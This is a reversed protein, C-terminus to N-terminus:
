YLLESGQGHTLPGDAGPLRCTLKYVFKKDTENKKKVRKALADRFKRYGSPNDRLDDNGDPTCFGQWSHLEWLGKRSWYDPGTGCAVLGNYKTAYRYKSGSSFLSRFFDLSAGSGQPDDDLGVIPLGPLDDDAPPCNPLRKQLVAGLLGGSLLSTSSLVSLMSFGASLTAVGFFLGTPDVFDVPRAATYLYRHISAPDTPAADFPDMGLFRGSGADLWRARNYYFGLNPDFPEGAFQYPQMDTGVHSLQEGFATYTYSDTVAGTKDTLTRISGLGDAHFHRQEAPRVVSLLDDGRVYYSIFTGGGDSEAVVHSLQGSTDVLFDTVTASGGIPTATTQVRVGDTDYFHEVVTGDTQDVRILRDEFDWTYTAEGSESTLNGNDDYANTATTETLLRDRDDYSYAVSGTGFGTTIQTKRNGVDDYDFTKQYVLAGVSDTVTELSLRYLNDTDYARATGDAENVQTRNGAPGLTFDYSQITGVPGTTTLNTLRNLDDYVYSTSTGNPYSLAARNGNSDYDHDYTGGSPDTVIDLRSADDYSRNLASDM